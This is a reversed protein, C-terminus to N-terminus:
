TTRDKRSLLWLSHVCAVNRLAVSRRQSGVLAGSCSFLVMRPFIFIFTAVVPSKHFYQFLFYFAVDLVLNYCTLDGFVHRVYAFLSLNHLREEFYEFTFDSFIFCLKSRINGDEPIYSSNPRQLDVSTKSSFPKWRWHRFTDHNFDSPLCFETGQM